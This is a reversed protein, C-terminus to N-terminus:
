CTSASWSALVSPLRRLQGRSILYSSRIPKPGFRLHSTTMRAPSRRTTSSTARRTTTPRKASSRSPTRTPASPAMRAWATSCPACRAESRRHLIDPDYDLSTHTVDDNIGITFHNKRRRKTCSTSSARSWRRRSNRRRSATAGASSRPFAEAAVTARSAEGLATVVDCTSRSAPPARSRPATSCPSRKSAPPCRRRPLARDSFPRYLRVKLLGVKEGQAVLDEVAEQAAEAGSGMMVIVREADPAGVYDFLSVPPRRDGRVPGDREARHDPLALYFPNVAERAQFYVDPNQATGRLVPHDPSLARARHARVLEDDIMRRLDDDTLQEVKAVEHSTRFGDFFHLFPIRAELTAAQAILAM